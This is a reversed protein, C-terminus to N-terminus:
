KGRRGGILGKTFMNRFLLTRRTARLISDNYIKGNTTSMKGLNKGTASKAITTYRRVFMNQRSHNGLHVIKVKGKLTVELTVLRNSSTVGRPNNDNIHISWVTSGNNNILVPANSKNIGTKKVDWLQHAGGYYKNFPLKSIGKVAGYRIRNAMRKNPALHTNFEFKNHNISNILRKLNRIEKKSFGSRSVLSKISSPSNIVKYNDAYLNGSISLLIVFVFQVLKKM